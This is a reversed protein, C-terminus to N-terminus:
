DTVLRIADAAAREQAPAGGRGRAHAQGRQGRLRCPPAVVLVAATTSVVVRYHFRCDGLQLRCHLAAVEGSGVQDLEVQIPDFAQILVTGGKPRDEFHVWVGAIDCAPEVLLAPGAVHAAWQVADRDHELVVDVGRVHHRRGPRKGEGTRSWVLVGGQRLPEAVRAGDDQ